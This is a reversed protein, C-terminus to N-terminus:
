SLDPFGDRYYITYGEDNPDDLDNFPTRDFVTEFRGDRLADDDAINMAKVGHHDQGDFVPANSVGNYSFELLLRDYDATNIGSSHVVNGHFFLGDGPQLPVAVDKFRALMAELRRPNINAYADDDRIRDVRGMQHSGKLMRLCGSQEDANTLAVVCTLMNPMLCGDQYWGGFDQHWVVKGSRFAPKRVMKSHFHYVPEGILAAAGNVIRGLRTCTGLWDDAHRTWALYDHRTKESGDHVHYLRGGVQPDAAVAQRAPALETPDLFGPICVFGDRHYSAIQEATLSPKMM